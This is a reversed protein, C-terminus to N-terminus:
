LYLAVYAVFVISCTCCSWSCGTDKAIIYRRKWQDAWDITGRTGKCKRVGERQKSQDAWDFAPRFSDFPQSSDFAQTSPCDHFVSTMIVPTPHYLPWWLSFSGRHTGFTDRHTGLIDFCLTMFTAIASVSFLTGNRTKSKEQLKLRTQWCGLTPLHTDRTGIGGKMKRRKM